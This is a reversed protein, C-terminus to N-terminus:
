DDKEIHYSPDLGMVDVLDLLHEDLNSQAQVYEVSASKYAEEAERMAYRALVLQQHDRQLHALIFEKKEHLKM